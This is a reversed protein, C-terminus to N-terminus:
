GKLPRKKLSRLIYSVWSIDINLINKGELDNLKGKKYIVANFKAKYKFAARKGFLSAVILNYIYRNNKLYRKLL